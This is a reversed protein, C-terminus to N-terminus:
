QWLESLLIQFQQNGTEILRCMTVNIVYFDNNENHCWSSGLYTRAKYLEEKSVTKRTSERTNKLSKILTLATAAFHM